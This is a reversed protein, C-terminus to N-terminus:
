GYGNDYHATITMDGIVTFTTPNGGSGADFYEFFWYMGDYGPIPINDDVGVNVQTGYMVSFTVSTQGYDIYGIWGSDLYVNTPVPWGTGDDISYVTVTYYASNPDSLVTITHSCQINSFTYSTIPGQDIGDVYVHEVHYGPEASMTYTQSGGWEVTQTGSPTIQSYADGASATIDSYGSSPLIIGSNGFVNMYNFWWGNM